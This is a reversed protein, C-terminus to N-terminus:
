FILMAISLIIVSVILLFILLKWVFKLWTGYEVKAISLGGMVVGSTPTFLNVLGSGATFIMIMVEPSLNLNKALPAFIPISVTALGSSSPILFSLGLYICYSLTVFAIGSINNLINSAKDLIFLDLGSNSMIFSIGRSIGLILAVGVMDAAGIIFSDMLDKESLRYVIGIILSMIFFWAALEPFSWEGLASGTLFRTPEFIHVGFDAWPVVGLIMIFFAIGFLILVWKRKKTFTLTEEQHHSYAEDVDKWESESLISAERKNRVKNAYRMVFFISIALTAIWLFLGIGIMIGQNVNIGVSKASAAAVGPAFPNVTSGLTGCGAGLMITAVAVLPDFGVALMTATILAYFALSEEAMGYTTGGLSFIIMLIPILLLEKGKMRKVIAAVGADLAGTKTVVGLFGGIILIFFAVDIAGALSGNNWVDIYPHDLAKLDDLSQIIKGEQMNELIREQTNSDKIGIMGNIPAMIVDNIKAPIVDPVFQTILGVAVTLILLVTYATPFKFKKKDM